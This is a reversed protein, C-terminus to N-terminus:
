VNIRQVGRDAKSKVRSFVRLERLETKLNRICLYIANVFPLKLRAWNWALTLNRPRSEGLQVCAERYQCEDRADLSAALLARAVHTRWDWNHLNITGFLLEYDSYLNGARVARRLAANAGSNMASGAVRRYTATSQQLYLLEGHAAAFAFLPWDGVAYNALNVSRLFERVITTKLMTTCTLVMFEGRMYAPYVNGQPLPKAGYAARLVRDGLRSSILRDYNTHVITATPYNEFVAVQAELKRRDQWYDDGECIAIFDGSARAFLLPFLKKGLSFQNETQLIAIFLRPYRSIYEKIITATRDTSADDHILIEIPFTTEQCLFSEIAERVLNEHNFTICCISVLPTTGQQWQQKWVPLPEDLRNM